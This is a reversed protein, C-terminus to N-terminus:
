AVPTADRSAAFPVAATFLEVNGTRTDNWVLYLVGGATSLGQYDGIWWAGHKTEPVGLAPDFPESSVLTASGFPAAASAAQWLVVNVRGEALAFASIAIAGSEDVVIQPQFFAPLDGPWAADVTVPPDFSQGAGAAHALHVHLASTDLDLGVYSLDIAGDLAIALSPGTPLKVNGALAPESPVRAITL